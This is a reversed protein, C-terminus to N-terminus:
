FRRWGSFFWQPKKIYGQSESFIFSDIEPAVIRGNEEEKLKTWFYKVKRRNNLGQTGVGM